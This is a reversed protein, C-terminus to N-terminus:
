NLQRSIWELYRPEGEENNITLAIVEPLDYTHLEVIRKTLLELASKTTKILLTNEEDVCVKGEWRYVSKVGPVVNVCAALGEEVLVRAMQESLDAPTNCLVLRYEGTM